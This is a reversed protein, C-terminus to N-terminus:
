PHDGQAFSALLLQAKAELALYAALNTPTLTSTSGGPTLNLIEMPDLQLDYFERVGTAWPGNKSILKYRSDRMCRNGSTTGANRGNPAFISSWLETRSIDGAMYIPPNHAFVPSFSIGDMVRDAPPEVGFAEIITRGIDCTKVLGAYTSGLVGAALGAGGIFLPCNIGSEYTNRKAHNPDYYRGVVGNYEADSGAAAGPNGIAIVATGNDGWILVLTKTLDIYQMLRGFETDMAEISAKFYPWCETPSSQNAPYALPTTWVSTVLNAPPRHFPEHPAHFNVNLYFPQSGISRLWRISDDVIHTTSYWDYIRRVEGNVVWEMNFYPDSFIPSSNGPQPPAPLNRLTGSYYEFGARLMSAYTGNYRNGLHWKGIGAVRVDPRQGRILEMITSESELLSVENDNEIIDGDGNREPYRMTIDEARTPSCFANTFYRTLTLGGTALANINPTNAYPRGKGGTVGGLGLTSFQEVGIDDMIVNLVNVIAGM